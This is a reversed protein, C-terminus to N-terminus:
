APGPGGRDTWGWAYRLVPRNVIQAEFERLQALTEEPLVLDSWNARPVIPTALRSLVSDARAQVIAAVHELHVQRGEGLACGRAKTAVSEIEALGVPYRDAATRALDISGLARQWASIYTQRTAELRVSAFNTALPADSGVIAPGPFGELLRTEKM